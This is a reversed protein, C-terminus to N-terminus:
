ADFNSKLITCIGKPPTSPFKFQDVELAVTVEQTMNRVQENTVGEV